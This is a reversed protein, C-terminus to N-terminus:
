VVSKRDAYDQLKKMMEQQAEAKQEYGDLFEYMATEMIGMDGTEFGKEIRDQMKQLDKGFIAAYIIDEYLKELSKAFGRRFAEGADEGGNKFNNVLESMINNGVDGILSKVVEDIEAKAKKYEEALNSVYQLTEKTKADLLNSSLLSKAMADNLNGEADILLPYKKLLNDYVDVVKRKELMGGIFGVAGGIIAGPVSLVGAGTAGIVAGTGAGAATSAGVRAWDRKAKKTGVKVQGDQLDRMAKDYEKVLSIQKSLNARITRMSDKYFVNNAMEDRIKQEEILALNYGRQFDIVNQLAEAEKLKNQQVSQLINNLANVISTAAMQIKDASQLTGNVLKDWNSIFLDASSSVDQLANGISALAPSSDGLSSLANGLQGVASSLARFTDIRDTLYNLKEQKLSRFLM